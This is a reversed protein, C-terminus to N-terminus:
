GNWTSAIHDKDDLLNREFSLFEYYGCKVTGPHDRCIRPRAKYVTCQRTDQDLFQCASGFTEDSQHRLIRKKNKGNSKTFKKQAEDAALDFHKALRKIDSKNVEIVPYTCCYGPCRDCNYRVKSPAM